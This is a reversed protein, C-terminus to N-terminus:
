MGVCNSEWHVRRFRSNKELGVANQVFHVNRVLVFAVSEFGVFGFIQDDTPGRQSAGQVLRCFTVKEPGLQVKVESGLVFLECVVEELM